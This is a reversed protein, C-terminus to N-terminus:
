EVVQEEAEPGTGKGKDGLQPFQVDLRHFPTQLFLLHRVNELKDNIAKMRDPLSSALTKGISDPVERPIFKPRVNWADDTEQLICNVPAYVRVSNDHRLLNLGKPVEFVKMSEPMCASAELDGSQKLLGDLFAAGKDGGEGLESGRPSKKLEVEVGGLGLGGETWGSGGDRELRVGCEEFAGMRMERTEEEPLYLDVMPFEAEKYGHEVAEVGIRLTNLGLDLFGLPKGKIEVPMREISADEQYMPVTAKVLCDEDVRFPEELAKKRKVEETEKENKEKEIEAQTKKKVVEGASSQSQQFDLEVLEAVEVRDMGEIKAMMAKLRRDVRRRTIWQGVLFVLRQLQKKRKRWLDNKYIDFTPNHIKLLISTSNVETVARDYKAPVEYPSLFADDSRMREQQRQDFLQNESAEERGSSIAGVHDETMLPEGIFVVSSKFEREKEEKDLEQIDQLFAMEKIQRTDVDNFEAALIAGVSFQGSTVRDGAKGGGATRARADEQERKQTERFDRQKRIAEKLDKPKLKGPTQTLVYNLEYPGKMEGPFRLGEVTTEPLPPAPGPDQRRPLKIKRMNETYWEAGADNVAGSGKGIPVAAPIGRDYTELLQSEKSEENMRNGTNGYTHGLAASIALPAGLGPGLDRALNAASKDLQRERHKGPSSSGIIRCIFPKFNFQSVNVQMECDFTGYLGPTFSVDIKARGNAPIKGRLPSVKFNADQKVFTLEYEFEIPVKCEITYEHTVEESVFCSGFDILSPFVVDNAIPYSHIPILLNNEDDANHETLGECNVRVCDYYYRYEDPFFDVYVQQSMGPAVVGLKDYRLKFNPTTPPIIHIRKPVAGSNTIRLVQTNVDELDYGGFHVVSPRSEFFQVRGLKNFRRKELSSARHNDITQTLAFDSLPNAPPPSSSEPQAPM